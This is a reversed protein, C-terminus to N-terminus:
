FRIVRNFGFSREYADNLRLLWLLSNLAEVLLYATLNSGQTIARRSRRVAPTFLSGLDDVYHHNRFM